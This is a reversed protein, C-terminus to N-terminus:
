RRRISDCGKCIDRLGDRRTCDKYFNNEELLKNCMHCKKM